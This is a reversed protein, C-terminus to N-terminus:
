ILRMAKKRELEYDIIEKIPARDLLWKKRYEGDPDFKIAQTYPNFIRFYPQADVGTGASWQWGGNNNAPDYDTLRSAFYKEGWRWDIHLLKTLFSAVIMRGRNHMFGSKNMQKMCADVVDYGTEGDCWKKFLKVNNIWKIKNRFNMGYVHKFHYGIQLYFDRWYLQKRFEVSKCKHYVERVSLTGFKLHPGLRSTEFTLLDRNDAYKACKFTALKVLGAARGGPNLLNIDVDMKLLIKVISERMKHLNISKGAFKALKSECAHPAVAPVRNKSAFEYYPTFVKYPKIDLPTNLCLDTDYVVVNEVTELKSDREVAYKSYDRNFSIVDYNPSMKSILEYPDGYLIKLPIQKQLEILSDLMFLMAPASFFKNNKSSIQIPDLIFVCNVVTCTKCLENLGINDIYRLDRRFIFLGTKGGSM